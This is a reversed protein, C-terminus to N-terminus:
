SGAALYFYLSLLLLALLLTDVVAAPRIGRPSHQHPKLFATLYFGAFVAYRLIAWSAYAVPTASTLDIGRWQAHLFLIQALFALVAGLLFFMWVIREAGFVRKSARFSTYAGIASSALLAVAVAVTAAPTLLQM